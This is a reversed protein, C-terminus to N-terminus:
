AFSARIVRLTETRLSYSASICLMTAICWAGCIEITALVDTTQHEVLHRLSLISAMSIAICIALHRYWQWRAARLLQRHSIAMQVIAQLARTIGWAVIAGILGYRKTGFVVAPVLVLVSIWNTYAIMKTKGYAWSFMTALHILAGIAAFPSLMSLVGHVHEVVETQHSWVHLITRSFVCLVVTTPIVGAIVIESGKLYYSIAAGDDGIAHLQAFVPFLTTSIPYYFFALIGVISWALSYYGFESIPMFHSVIVKDALTAVLVSSYGACFGVILPLRSRLLGVHFAPLACFKIRLARWLIRRLVFVHVVSIGTQWLFFASVTPSFVVIIFAAGGFKATYILCNVLNVTFQRELGLLGGSYLATPWSAGLCLGIVILARTVVVHPLNGTHLWSLSFWQVSAIFGISFLSGVTWYVIELTQALECSRKAAAPNGRMTAMERNLVASLGLDLIQMLGQMTSFVAILGFAEAGLHRIYVPIFVISILAPWARGFYNAITNWTRSPPSCSFLERRSPSDASAQSPGRLVSTM